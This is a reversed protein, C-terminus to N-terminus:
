SCIGYIEDEDEKKGSKSPSGDRDARPGEADVSTDGILRAPLEQDRALLRWIEDARDTWRVRGFFESDRPYYETPLTVFQIEDLGIGQLQMAVRGLRVVNAFEEDTRLSKTAADLFKVVRDLRTLTGASLVQRVLAGIFEQQRRIRSIDNRQLLPGVYRARVYDLAEDGSLRSPNGAPVFIGRPKDVIDYPVCVEVAGVADVMSGFSAFDVVIFHEVRIHANEELQRMTCLPGGVNFAANWIVDTVAPSDCGDEPRDVISDRPISVAYARSRDASLHVLITTDSGGGQEDDIRNAGARSDSGMVLVDLPRGNGTYREVPRAKEDLGDTPVSEINGNLHRVFVVTSVGTVLALVLATVLVIRGVSWRRRATARPPEAEEPSEDPM